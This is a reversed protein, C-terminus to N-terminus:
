GRGAEGSREGAAQLGRAAQAEVAAMGCEAALALALAYHEAALAPEGARSAVDALLLAARAQYGRQGYRQAERLAARAEALAADFRGAELLVAAHSAPFYYANYRGGLRDLQDDIAREILALAADVQGMRAMAVCLRALIPPEMTPVDQVRCRRRADEFLGAAEQLRGQELWLSGQVWDLLIRSYAHDGKELEHYAADCHAQAAAFDGIEALADASFAHVNISPITAWRPLLALTALENAFEQEVRRADALTERYRGQGHRLMMRAQQAAMQASRGTAHEATRQASAQAAAAAELGREYQGLVWLVFALQLAVGSERRLDGLQRTIAHAKDLNDVAEDMKGLPSLASLATMRLRLELQRMHREDHGPRGVADLGLAFLNLADRNASRGIARGMAQVACEAAEPWAEGAYAHQTLLAAYEGSPADGAGRLVDYAARHLQRRRPRSLSAAVVEQVLSHRFGFVGAEGGPAAAEALLGSSCAQRLATEVEAGSRGAMPALRAPVIPEGLVAACELVPKAAVPLSDVRAAVVSSISAPPKLRDLQRACRYAGPEGVLTGDDVLAMAMQELFFPNGGAREVLAGRLERVSPDSGLIADAMRDMLAGDLPGLPHESFWPAEGFRHAFEPRYTGCLLLPARELPRLMSELLRQSERDIHFLDDIVILLPGQALRQEILALLADALRRRRLAPSLEAWALGQEGLDLLDALASRHPALAPGAQEIAARLAEERRGGDCALLAVALEAMTDCPLQQRYARATVWCTAFGEGALRESLALALRSKGIGAEGRLGVVHMRGARVRALPETLAALVADRGILPALQRRRALPAVASLELEYAPLPQDFGKADISLARLVEVQGQVLRMTAAGILTGGAPAHQELRKASHLPSGDARYYTASYEHVAGVALEGSDIGVRIDFHAAGGAAAMRVRRHLDLAALCARLAHDEQAVPAGFLALVGDGLLQSVIGGYAAVAECMMRLAPELQSRAEEPDDAAFNRTSECIDAFFVSAQKRESAAGLSGPAGGSRAGLSAPGARARKVREASV